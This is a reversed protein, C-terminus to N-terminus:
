LFLLFDTVKGWDIGGVVPQDFLVGSVSGTDIPMFIQGVAGVAPGRNAEVKSEGVFRVRDGKQFTRGGGSKPPASPRGTESNGPRYKMLRSLLHDRPEAADSELVASHESDSFLVTHHDLPLVCAGLQKAAAMTLETLLVETGYPGELLVCPSLSSFIQLSPDLVFVALADLLIGKTSELVRCRLQDLPPSNNKEPTVIAAEFESQFRQRTREQQALRELQVAKRAAKEEEGEEDEERPQEAM